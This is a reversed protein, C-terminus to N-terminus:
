LGVIDNLMNVDNGVKLKLYVNKFYIEFKKVM